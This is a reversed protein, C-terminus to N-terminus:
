KGRRLEKVVKAPDIPVVYNLPAVLGVCYPKGNAMGLFVLRDGLLLVDDIDFKALMYDSYVKDYHYHTDGVTAMLTDIGNFVEQTTADPHTFEKAKCIDSLNIAPSLEADARRNDLQSKLPRFEDGIKDKVIFHGNTTWVSYGQQTVDDNIRVHAVYVGQHLAKNQQKIYSM